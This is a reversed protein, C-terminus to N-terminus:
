LSIIKVRQNLEPISLFFIGKHEWPIIGGNSMKQHFLIKGGLDYVYVDQVQKTNNFKNLYIGGNSYYIDTTNVKSAIIPSYRVGGDFDTMALRYYITESSLRDHTYSYSSGNPFIGTASIAGSLKQFSEEIGVKYEVVFHSLNFEVLTEWFVNNGIAEFSKLIIPLAIPSECSGAPTCNLGPCVYYPGQTCEPASARIEFCVTMIDGAKGCQQNGGSSNLENNGGILLGDMLHNCANDYTKITHFLRTQASTPPNPNDLRMTTYNTPEDCRQWQQVHNIDVEARTSAENSCIAPAGNFPTSAPSASNFAVYMKGSAPVVYEFCVETPYPYTIEYCEGTAVRVNLDMNGGFAPQGAVRPVFEKWTGIVNRGPCHPTQAITVFVNFVIIVYTTTLRKM